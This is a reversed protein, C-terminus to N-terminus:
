NRFFQKEDGFPDPSATCWISRYWEDNQDVLVDNQDDLLANQDVLAVKHDVLVIKQDHPFM